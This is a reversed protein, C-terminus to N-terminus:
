PAASVATAGVPESVPPNPGTYAPKPPVYPGDPYTGTPASSGPAPDPVPAPETAAPAPEAAAPVDVPAAPTNVVVSVPAPERPAPSPVVAPSTYASPGYTTAVYGVAPHVRAKVDAVEARIDAALETMKSVADIGGPLSPSQVDHAIAAVVQENRVWFALFATMLGLAVNLAVIWQAPLLNNLNNAVDSGVLLILGLVTVITKNYKALKSM